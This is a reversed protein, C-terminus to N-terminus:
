SSPFVPHAHRHEPHIRWNQYRHRPSPYFRLSIGGPRDPDKSNVGPGMNGTDANYLNGVAFVRNQAVILRDPGFATCFKRKAQFLDVISQRPHDALKDRILNSHFIDEITIINFRSHDHSM